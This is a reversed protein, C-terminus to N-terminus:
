VGGKTFAAARDLRWLVGNAGSFAWGDGSLVLFVRRRDRRPVLIDIDASRYAADDGLLRRQVPPGRLIMVPVGVAQLRGAIRRLATTGHVAAAVTVIRPDRQDRHGTPSGTGARDSM